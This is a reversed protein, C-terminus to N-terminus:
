AWALHDLALNGIRINILTIPILNKWANSLGPEFWGLTDTLTAKIQAIMEYSIVVARNKYWIVWGSQPLPMLGLFSTEM